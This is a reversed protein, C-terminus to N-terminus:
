KNRCESLKCSKFHLDREIHLGLPGTATELDVLNFYGLETEFGKVLGFFVGDEFETAYWTWDNDPTFFKVYVMANEGLGDQAYLKPIRKRIEKTLLKM